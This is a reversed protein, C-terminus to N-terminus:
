GAPAPPRARGNDPAGLLADLSAKLCGMLLEVPLGGPRSITLNSAVVTEESLGKASVVLVPLNRLEEDAHMEELVGYGDLGPMLLDLIVADPRRERMVALGTAGDTAEWVRYRRSVSRILRSLVRVMEPDDDIVLIGRCERGLRALAERLRERTVPKVLYDIVGLDRATARRGRLSCAVVPLGGLSEPLWPAPEEVGAPTAVVVADPAHADILHRAERTSGATVVQYGDLYRDFLSGAAQEEDLVVVTRRATAADGRLRVWTEWPATAGVVTKEGVPLSFYFTTGQGPQSEVWMAGGHMEIFHKSIPLGLGSGTAGAGPFRWFEDFVRTLDAADIGAGTDTVAVVVEAGERATAAVRVSGQRTYRAANSLLNILVQRIRTRDVHVPPLGPTPDVGLGLSKAEFLGRVGAVAEDVIEALDVTERHLGMRRAEVQSLDLVDDILDSLHRANRHIAELDHRYAPPITQGGYSEPSRAMVESFGVVLNLPTRFEHSLNAAFESKRRRAETAARRARDLEENARELRDYAEGLSKLVRNLEGQRDRLEDTRQLAEAYSSWAWDLATQLPRAALWALFASGWVLLLAAGLLDLPVSGPVRVAVLLLFLSGVAAVAFGHGSGLLMAAALGVLALLTAVVGGPRSWLAALSAGLMGAVLVWAAVEFRHRALWLALVCSALLGLPAIWTQPRTEATGFAQWGIALAATPLLLLRFARTRLDSLDARTFGSTEHM